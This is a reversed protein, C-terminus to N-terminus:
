RLMKLSVKTMRDGSYSRCALSLCFYYIKATRIVPCFKNLLWGAKLVRRMSFANIKCKGFVVISTYTRAM